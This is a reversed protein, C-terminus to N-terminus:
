EKKDDSSGRNELYEYAGIDAAQGQPIPTGLADTKIGADAGNDIAPSGTKLRYDRQAPDVFVTGLVERGVLLNRNEDRTIGTGNGVLINNARIASSGPGIAV